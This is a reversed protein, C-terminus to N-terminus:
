LYLETNNKNANTGITFNNTRKVEGLVCTLTEKATNRRLNYDNHLEMPTYVCRLNIDLEM